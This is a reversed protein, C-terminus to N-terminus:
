RDAEYDLKEQYFLLLFFFFSELFLTFVLWFKLLMFSLKFLLCTHPSCRSREKDGVSM